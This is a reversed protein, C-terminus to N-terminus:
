DPIFGDPYVRRGRNGLFVHGRRRPLMDKPPSYEPYPQKYQKKYDRLLSQFDNAFVNKDDYEGRARAIRELCGLVLLEHFSEELDPTVTLDSSTLENPKKNYYVYVVKGEDADTPLPNLFLKSNEVVSYVRDTSNFRRGSEISVFTLEDFKNSGYSTEIVVQKIGFPDCDAPLDYLSYNSVTMFTHPEAEHRVMQFIQRLITNIWEVKQATSYSNRYTTDITNLLETLTPM